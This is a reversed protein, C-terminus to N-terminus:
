AQGEKIALASLYREAPLLYEKHTLTATFPVSNVAIGELAMGARVMALAAAYLQPATRNLLGDGTIQLLVCDPKTAPFLSMTDGAGDKESCWDLRPDKKPEEQVQKIEQIVPAYLVGDIIVSRENENM